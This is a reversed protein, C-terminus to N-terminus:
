RLQCKKSGGQFRSEYMNLLYGFEELPMKEVLENYAIQMEATVEVDKEPEDPAPLVIGGNRMIVRAYIEDDPHPERLKARLQEIKAKQKPTLERWCNKGNKDLYTQKGQIEFIQRSIEFDNRIKM